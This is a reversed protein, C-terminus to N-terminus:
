IIQKKKLRTGYRRIRLDYALRNKHFRLRTKYCNTYRLIEDQVTPIKLEKHLRSNRFFFPAGTCMRLIINQSAQIKKINTDSATGWIPLCYTWIPKIVAKYVLLKNKLSIKSKCNLLYYLSRRRLDLEKRKKAVHTAFTLRRDLHLGLYKITDVNPMTEGNINIPPCSQRNLTFTMHGCKNSNIKINWRDAWAAFQQMCLQLARSAVNPDLNRCMVASDDAFVAMLAGDMTPMDSTYFNFLHPGIVSGQPVGASIQGIESIEEGVKVFFQRNALYSKLLVYTPAEFYSKIKYLLGTTWVRDFAEQVDLFAASVYEKGEFGKRIYDVVRHCQEMTSHGTRFGFQTDPIVEDMHPRLRVLLIREFVKSLVCLLSIPRYSGIEEPPKGPKNIMIVMAQKWFSPFHSLRFMANFIYTIFIVGKKPLKRIMYPTVGDPGASKKLKLKEIETKVETFTTSPIHRTMPMPIDIETNIKRIDEADKNLQFPQFVEVLRSKHSEAKEKDTRIWDGSASRLPSRRALPKYASRVAKWLSHDNTKNPSLSNLRNSIEEEHHNKLLVKLERTLKNLQTKHPPFRTDQWLKRARRKEEIKLRIYKSYHEIKHSNMEFSNCDAATKILHTFQDLADEIEAPSKLSINLSINSEIHEEFRKYNILKPTNNSLIASCCTLIIPSHDSSLDLSNTVHLTNANLGKYIFFDMLDPIKNRDTPWYTPEGGSIFEAGLRNISKLLERGKPNCLRSGWLTHKANFDGGAIFRSGFTALLNNFDAEKLSFRPRCYVAAISFTHQKLKLQVIAAQISDTSIPPCEIYQLSRRIIIATGGYSNGSPHNSFIAAYNNIRCYLRDTWHTESILMIDIQNNLLFSEIERIHNLLGNSNWHAIRLNINM